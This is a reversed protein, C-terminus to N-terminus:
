ATGSSRDARHDRRAAPSPRRDAPGPVRDLYVGEDRRASGTCTRAAATRESAALDGVKQVEVAGDDREITRRAGVQPSWGHSRLPCWIGQVTYQAEFRRVFPRPGPGADVAPEWKGSPRHGGSGLGPLRLDRQLRLQDVQASPCSGSTMAVYSVSRRAPKSRLIASHATSKMVPGALVTLREGNVQGVGRDVALSKARASIGTVTRAGAQRPRTASSGGTSSRRWTLLGGTCAVPAHVEPRGEVQRSPGM